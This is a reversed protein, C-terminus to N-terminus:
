GASPPEAIQLLALLARLQAQEAATLAAARLLAERELQRMRWTFERMLLLLEVRLEGQEAALLGAVLEPHDTDLGASSFSSQLQLLRQRCLALVAGLAPSADAPAADLRERARRFRQLVQAVEDALDASTDGLGPAPLAPMDRAVEAAAARLVELLADGFEGPILKTAISSHVVPSAGSEMLGLLWEAAALIQAPLGLQAEGRLGQPYGFGDLREHHTLVLEALANGGGEIDRLVRHGIVPHSAIQRWQDAQLPTDRRLLEPALYLEGVDHLLGARALRQQGEIDGPLLRRALGLAALAVGVAHTLRDESRRGYVTLLSQLPASLPLKSLSVAAPQAREHRCLAGLLPHRALQQAAVEALREPSIGDIVGLCHELPKQLKHQLLRERLAASIKAGRALLKIGNGGVIDETAEIECHEATAVVHDLYHPNVDTGEAAARSSAEYM